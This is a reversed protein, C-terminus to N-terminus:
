QKFLRRLISYDPDVEWGQRASGDSSSVYARKYFEIARALGVRPVFL